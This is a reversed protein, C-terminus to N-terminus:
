FHRYITKVGWSSLGTALLGKNKLKGYSLMMFLALEAPHVVVRGLIEIGEVSFKDLWSSTEEM